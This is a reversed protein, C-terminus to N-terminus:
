AIMAQKPLEVNDGGLSFQEPSTAILHLFVEIPLPRSLLYGQGQDVGCRELLAMQEETEIGEAVTSM